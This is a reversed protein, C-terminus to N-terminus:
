DSMVILGLYQGSPKEGLSKSRKDKTRKASNHIDFDVGCHLKNRGVLKVRNPHDNISEGFGSVEFRDVGAVVDLLIYFDVDSM